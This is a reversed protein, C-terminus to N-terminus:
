FAPGMDELTFGPKRPDAAILVTISGESEEWLGRLRGLFPNGRSRGGPYLWFMPTALFKAKIPSTLFPQPLSGWMLLDQLGLCVTYRRIGLAM